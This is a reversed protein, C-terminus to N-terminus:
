YHQLHIKETSSEMDPYEVRLIVTGERKNVNIKVNPEGGGTTRSMVRGMSDYLTASDIGRDASISLTYGDYTYSISKGDTTTMEIGAPDIGKVSFEKWQEAMEYANAMSNITLLTAHKGSTGEFVDAGLRPISELQTVDLLRLGKMEALAKNDLANIRAPLKIERIRDNSHLTYRGLSETQEGIIGAASSLAAGKFLYPPLNTLKSPLTTKELSKCDFFAGDGLMTLSEPLKVEKLMKCHGYSWSGIKELRQCHSLDVREIASGNFAEDGISVLNSGCTVNSLSACGSFAEKGIYTVSKLQISEISVCGKFSYDGLSTVGECGSVEVLRDCGNFAAAGIKMVGAPIDIRSIHSAALSGEGIEILTNPLQLHQIRSGALAYPPLTHEPSSILGGSLAKGNYSEITITGIDLKEVETLSTTIFDFDAANMKGTVRLEKIGTDSVLNELGGATCDVELARAGMATM